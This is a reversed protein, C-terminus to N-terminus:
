GNDEGIAANLDAIAARYDAEVAADIDVVDRGEAEAKDIAATLADRFKRAWEINRPM